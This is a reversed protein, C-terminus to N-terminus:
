ERTSGAADWTVPVFRALCGAPIAAVRVVVAAVLSATEGVSGVDMGQVGSNREVSDVVADLITDTTTAAIPVAITAAAFARIFTVSVLYTWCARCVAVLVVGKIAVAQIV